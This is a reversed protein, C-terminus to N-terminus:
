KLAYRLPCEGAVPRVYLEPDRKAAKNLVHGETAKGAAKSAAQAVKSAAQASMKFHEPALNNYDQLSSPHYSTVNPAKPFSSLSLPDNTVHFM